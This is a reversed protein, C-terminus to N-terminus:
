AIFSHTRKTMLCWVLVDIGFRNLEEAMFDLYARRDNDTQFIPISRVGKLTAHHLYGSAVVRCIRAM